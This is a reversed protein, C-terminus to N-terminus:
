KKDTFPNGSCDIVLGLVVNGVNGDRRRKEGTRTKPKQGFRRFLMGAGHREALRDSFL